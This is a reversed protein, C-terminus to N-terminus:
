KNILRFRFVMIPPVDPMNAWSTGSKPKEPGPLCPEEIADIAFGAKFFTEALLNIPRHFYFQPMPQGVIGLTKMSFPTAYQSVKVGAINRVAVNKDEFTECYRRTAPSNFCPHMISAVFIGGEKLLRSLADAVPEMSPMDMLAMTCVAKDFRSQGLELFSEPNGADIVHYTIADIGGSRKKAREIFKESHDFATVQAGLAAMRRAFRGAGCAVDLILDGKQVALLRETAPEILLDQFENGDGIKDDWWEANANWIDRNEGAFESFSTNQNVM